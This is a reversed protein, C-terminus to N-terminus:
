LGRHLLAFPEDGNRAFYTARLSIEDSDFLFERQRELRRGSRIDKSIAYRVEQTTM